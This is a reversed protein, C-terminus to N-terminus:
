HVLRFYVPQKPRHRRFQSTAHALLWKQLQGIESLSGEPYKLSTHKNENNYDNLPRLVPM